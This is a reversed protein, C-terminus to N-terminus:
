TMQAEVLQAKIAQAFIQPIAPVIGNGICKARHTWDPLGHIKGVMDILYTKRHPKWLHRSLGIASKRSKSISRALLDMKPKQLTLCTNHAVIWVRLRLHYAGVACAPIIFPQGKYGIDELDNLLDDLEVVTIGPVNEYVFWAAGSKKVVDLMAPRFFRDDKEGRRFGAVSFAQCPHSATVVDCKVAPVNRVDGYNIVKPWHKKLVASAYADIEAFGITKFGEAEFALSFGGIGSFLDLHTLEYKM